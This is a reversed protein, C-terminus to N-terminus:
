SAQLRACCMNGRVQLSDLLNYSSADLMVGKQSGTVSFGILRTYNAKALSFGYGKSVSKGTLVATVGGCVTIPAAATGSKALVFAGNYTGAALRILDGPLASALATTLQASTSVSVTRTGTCSAATSPYAGQVFMNMNMSMSMMVIVLM